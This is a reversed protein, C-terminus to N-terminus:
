RATSSRQQDERRFFRDVALQARAQADSLAQQPTAQDLCIREIAFDLEARVEPWIPIPPLSRANPSSALNEFVEIYPNPHDAIYSPSMKALPSNKCHMSVLKEMIDQRNVFAIFEFAESKHKSTSPIALIDMGAYTVPPINASVAPFPAAAWECNDRRQERTLRALEETRLGRRNSMRPM